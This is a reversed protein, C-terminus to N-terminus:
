RMVPLAGCAGAGAATEDLGRLRVREERDFPNSLAPSCPPGPDAPRSDGERELALALRQWMAETDADARSNFAYQAYAVDTVTLRDVRSTGPSMISPWATTHGFGLAHMMEHTVIHSDSLLGTHRLRVRADSVEGGETWTLLTIGDAGGVAKVEVVIVDDPDDDKGITAPRFVSMGLDSDIAGLIKWFSASDSDSIEASGRRLAVPIPLRSPNWGVMRDPHRRSSARWFRSGGRGALAKGSQIPIWVNAFRGARITWGSDAPLQASAAPIAAVALVCSTATSAFSRRM